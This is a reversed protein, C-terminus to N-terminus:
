EGGLGQQYGRDKRQAGSAAESSRGKNGNTKRGELWVAGGPLLQKLKEVVIQKDAVKYADGLAITVSEGNQLHLYVAIPGPHLALVEKIGALMEQTAKRGPRIHLDPVMGALTEALPSVEECIIKIEEVEEEETEAAGKRSSKRSIKGRAVLVADKSLCPRCKEYTESFVILELKGTLDEMQVFAMAKNNRTIIPKVSSVMGVVTVEDKNQLMDLSEINLSTIKEIEDQLHRLPHDSIYLGLVDREMDLMINHELEPVHPIEPKVIDRTTDGGLLDFLSTQGSQAEQQRRQGYDMATDAVALLQGRHGELGDCAGCRILSELVQKNLLRGDVRCCLDFIDSFAEQRRAEIIADVSGRGVNKVAGLGLRICGNEVSFGWQSRNIDPPLVELGLRRSEEIYLSLKDESSMESSLLAAMFEVPYHCKLYATQYTIIGYATSHSKNFGYEAFFAIQDFIADATKGDIGRERCGDIFIGRQKDMVQFNKKAMARRLLDAQGLSFGALENAIQMVQEQYVIVGYTEKLIPGLMPHLYEVAQEGRKRAAFLPTGSGLPGPRYLAILAIIDDICDPRIERCLNRMGASEMQFLGICQGESITAYVAADDLPLNDLDVSKGSTEAILNLANNIVTLTRLGLFDMKLLGIKKLADMSYQTTVDSEGLRQLPAYDSLPENAIVVGAAHTSAHRSLGELAIAADILDRGIPNTNYYDKLEPSLELAAKLTEGFPIMKAIRDVDAYPIDMARGVDRVAARAKMTGFTIIQAVRDQGYKETVYQIVEDRREYCFDTDIDPMDVREPNLMREFLLNYRLPDINTIGLSYAVLSGGASGRGPGVAIGQERAYKIFDWVILFYSPFGMQSIVSLEYELRQRVESTVPNYRKELGELCLRRLYEKQPIGDPTNYQPLHISKMDMNFNCKEAIELTNSLAGPIEGFLAAMEGASKFYFEQTGFRLRGPDNVTKGTQICLLIDHAGADELRTYHSDNAAVMPIGLRRSLEILGPLVKREEALNHDHLELYFDESFLDHYFGAAEAAQDINDQLLLEPIEGALCASAAVLGKCHQSLLDKDIRPKYYFGELWGVSVLKILNRYGEDDKALLLLHHNAADLGPSKDHRTRPAVYVECGIIPKVGVDKCAKYFDVAGYMSGHDTLALAPMKLEAARAALDKLRSAGDLLSYESHCHLHVFQSPARL